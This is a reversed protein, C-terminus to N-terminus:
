QYRVEVEAKIKRGSEPPPISVWNVDEVIISRKCLAERPGMIIRNRALDKEIVFIPKGAAIGLGKRQGVTYFALGKHTGLQNGQM